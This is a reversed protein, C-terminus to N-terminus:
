QDALEFTDPMSDWVDAVMENATILWLHQRGYWSDPDALLSFSLKLRSIKKRAEKRNEKLTAEYMSIDSM